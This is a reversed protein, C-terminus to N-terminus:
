LLWGTRRSDPDIIMLNPNFSLTLANIGTKKERMDEGVVDEEEKGGGGGWETIIDRRGKREREREVNSDREVEDQFFAKREESSERESM